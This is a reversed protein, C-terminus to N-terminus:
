CRVKTEEFGGVGIIPSDAFGNVRLLHEEGDKTTASWM